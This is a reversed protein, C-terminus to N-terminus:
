FIIARLSRSDDFTLAVTVFGVSMGILALITEAEQCHSQVNEWQRQHSRAVHHSMFRM